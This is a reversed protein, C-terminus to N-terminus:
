SLLLVLLAALLAAGGGGLRDARGYLRVGPVTDLIFDSFATVRAYVGPQNPLACGLGFSVVGAQVWTGNVMQCVLPGGSDGQPSFFLLVHNCHSHNEWAPRHRGTYFDYAFVASGVAGPLFGQRGARIWCLDHRVSHGSGQDPEDRVHGSVFEPLHNASGGGASDRCRGSPSSLVFATLNRQIVDIGM